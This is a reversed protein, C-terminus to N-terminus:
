PTFTKHYPISKWPSIESFFNLNVKNEKVDLGLSNVAFELIHEHFFYVWYKM